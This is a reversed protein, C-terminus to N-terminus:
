HANRLSVTAAVSDKRFGDPSSAMGPVRAPRRSAGRAVITVSAVRHPDVPSELADSQADRYLFLLGTESASTSYSALPGAVPQVTNFRQAAANWDKFGLYSRGDSAQYLSLRVRRTFRLAAGPPVILAEQLTLTWAGSAAPFSACNGSVEPPAALHLSLWTAGTSDEFLVMVRDGTEPKENFASLTNGRTPSPAPITVRGATSACALAAGIPMHVEIASDLAVLIDGGSPSVGWLVGAAIDTTQGIQNRLAVIEGIGRFFRLQQTAVHAAVAVVGGMVSLSILM